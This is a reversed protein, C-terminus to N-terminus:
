QIEDIIPILAIQHVDDDGELAQDAKNVLVPMGYRQLPFFVFEQVQTVADADPTLILGGIYQMQVKTEDVSGAASGTYAADAGSAAGTNDTGAAAAPSSSWWFEIVDGATPAVDMNIWVRVAWRAARTAGLDGKEGQRAAGVAIGSMTMDYDTGAADWIITTGTKILVENAM